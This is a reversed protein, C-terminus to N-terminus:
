PRGGYVLLALAADLLLVAALASGVAQIAAGAPDRGRAPAHGGHHCATAGILLGMLASKLLSLLTLGTDARELFHGAVQSLPLGQLLAVALWGGLVAVVQGLHTLVPLALVLALLRPLLVVDVPPLGLRRLARFEDRQGMVALEAALAASSRAVVVLATLLPVLEFCLGHFLWSQAADSGLGALAILQTVAVSGALACLSLTLPLAAVGMRHIQRYLELRLVPERLRPARLLALAAMLTYGHLRQALAGMM